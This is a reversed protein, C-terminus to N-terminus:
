APHIGEGAEPDVSVLNLKRRVERASDDSFIVIERQIRERWIVVIRRSITRKIFAPDRREMAARRERDRAWRRNAMDRATRSVAAQRKINFYKSKMQCRNPNPYRGTRGQTPKGTPLFRSDLLFTKPTNAFATTSLDRASIAANLQRLYHKLATWATDVAMLVLSWRM